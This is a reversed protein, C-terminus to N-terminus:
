KWLRSSATTATSRWIGRIPLKDARGRDIFSPLRQIPPRSGQIKVFCRKRRRGMKQVNVEGDFHRGITGDKAVPADEEFHNDAYVRKIFTAATEKVEVFSDLAANAKILTSDLHVAEGNILGAQLCLEIVRNFFSVFVEEPNRSRAKSLVSHNPTAEDFDYGLYWRFALNVAIEKALKRESSIGYLYGLLMM